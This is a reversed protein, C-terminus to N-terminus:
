ETFSEGKEFKETLAAILLERNRRLHSEYWAKVVEGLASHLDDMDVEDLSSDYIIFQGFMRKWGAHKYYREGESHEFVIRLRMTLGDNYYWVKLSDGMRGQEQTRDVLQINKVGAYDFDERMAYREPMSTPQSFVNKAPEMILHVDIKQFRDNIKAFDEILTRNIEGRQTNLKEVDKVIKQTKEELEADLEAFWDNKGARESPGM